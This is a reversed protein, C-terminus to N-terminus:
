LGNAIALSFYIIEIMKQMTIESFVFKMGPEGKPGRPGIAGQNGTMGKTGRMGKIGKTGTSGKEGILNFSVKRDRPFYVKTYSFEDIKRM